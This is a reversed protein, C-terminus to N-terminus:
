EDCKHNKRLQESLQDNIDMEYHMDSFKRKGIQLEQKRPTQIVNSQNMSQTITQNQARAELIQKVEELSDLNATIEVVPNSMHKYMPRIAVLVGHPDYMWKIGKEFDLHQPIEETVALATRLNVL